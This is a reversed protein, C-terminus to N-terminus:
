RDISREDRGDDDFFRPPSRPEDIMDDYGDYRSMEIMVDYGDIVM